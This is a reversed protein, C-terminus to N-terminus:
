RQGAAHLAFLSQAAEAQSTSGFLSPAGAGYEFMPMPSHAAPQAWAYAGHGESTEATGYFSPAHEAVNSTSPAPQGFSSASDRRQITSAPPQTTTPPPQYTRPPAGTLWGFDPTTPAGFGAGAPEFTATRRLAPPPASSLPAAPRYRAFPDVPWTPPSHASSSPPTPVAMTADSPRRSTSAAPSDSRRTSAPLSQSLSAPPDLRRRKSPQGAVERAKGHLETRDASSKFPAQRARSYTARTKCSTM